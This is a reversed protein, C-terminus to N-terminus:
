VHEVKSRIKHCSKPSHVFLGFSNGSFLIYVAHGLFFAVRQRWVNSNSRKLEKLPGLSGNQTIKAFCNLKVQLTFM